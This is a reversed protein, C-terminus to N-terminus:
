PRAQLKLSVRMPLQHLRDLQSQYQSLMTAVDEHHHAVAQTSAWGIAMGRQSMPHVPLLSPECSPLHAQLAM